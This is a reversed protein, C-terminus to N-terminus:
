LPTIMDNQQEPLLDSVAEENLNVTENKTEQEKSDEPRVRCLGCKRFLHSINLQGFDDRPGIVTCISLFGFTSYLWSFVMVLMLFQGLQFYALVTAPMMMLGTLFTTVAAMTIASGIHVLSYRVRSVRQSKDPALRYAVGYHMTFDISLGVAVSMVISELINLQWGALVLSGITIAIIGIITIIAYISIFINLTTLLMVAFSVAVSIGLSSYTGDSLGIQLAYFDLGWCGAWGNQMGPPANPMETDVWYSVKKWFGDVASFNTSFAQNTFISILFGKVNGLADFLVGTTELRSGLKVCKETVNAPFPFSANVGCCPTQESTCMDIFTEIPCRGGSFAVFFSQKEVSQCLSRLFRQGAPTFLDDFNDDFELTGKDDPNLHNGNDTPKIGWILDIELGSVQQEFRFFSKYNLYYNELPHSSAFVQFDKTNPLQLGPKVFNVCIFGATLCVLLTIWLWHLKIVAKPLWNEFIKIGVRGTFNTASVLLSCPFDIVQLVCLTTEKHTTHSKMPLDAKIRNESMDQSTPAIQELKTEEQDGKLETPSVVDLSQGATYKMVWKEHLAVCAPFYTIMLLYNTLISTGAFIGFLRIPTITSSVGAFFASATTLSTVFMSVAAYRLTKLTLQMINANPNAGRTQRWIDYYVFADDAGIGVLFVLTTVNLFPFFDLKFVTTYLFYSLGFAYIITFLGCFTLIFSGLFFWMILFVAIMALAPYIVESLLKESFQDYKYASFRFSAFEVGERGQIGKKLQKNYLDDYVLDSYVMPSLVPLSVTYKLFMDNSPSMENDVLYHFINYVANFKTCKTPINKCSSSASANVVSTSPDCDSKLTQDFFYSSCNVLLNKVMAVDDNTIEKCSKRNNLLAVYNGLSWSSSCQKKGTKEDVTGNYCYETFYSSASLIDTELACAIKLKNAYFMTEKPNSSEFVFIMRPMTPILYSAFPPDVTSQASRRPRQRLLSLDSEQNQSVHVNGGQSGQTLIHPLQSFITRGLEKYFNELTVREDSLKTGRPEFGKIPDAFDPLPPAGLSPVISLM